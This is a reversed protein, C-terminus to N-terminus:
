HTEHLIDLVVKDSIGALGYIVSLIMFGSHNYMQKDQAEWLMLFLCLGWFALAAVFHLFDERKYEKSFFMRVGGMGMLFLVSFFAATTIGAYTWYRNGEQSFWHWLVNENKPWLLYGAAGLDGCGFNQRVKRVIHDPNWLNSLNEAIQRRAIETREEPSQATLCRIAFEENDSYTGAGSLGVAIWYEVPAKLRDVDKQYPLAKSYGQYCLIVVAMGGAFVAARKWHKKWMGFLFMGLFLAIVATASTAKIVFGVGFFFGAAATHWFRYGVSEREGGRILLALGLVAAGFSLQDSYFVSTNAWIPIWTIGMLVAMLSAAASHKKVGKGALYSLCAITVIAQLVNLFLVVYYADAVFPFFSSLKFLLALALMAGVNNHWRAFYEWNQVEQGAALRQAADYIDWYDTVPDSRLFCSVAFLGVGFLLLVAPLFYRWLKRFCSIRRELFCCLAWVCAYFVTWIVTYFFIRIPIQNNLPKGMAIGCILLMSVSFVLWFIRIWGSQTKLNM